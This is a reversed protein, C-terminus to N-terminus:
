SNAEFTIQGGTEDDQKRKGIKRARHFEFHFEVRKPSDTERSVVKHSLPATSSCVRVSGGLRFGPEAARVVLKLTSSDDSRRRTRRWPNGGIGEAHPPVAPM